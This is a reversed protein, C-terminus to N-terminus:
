TVGLYLQKCEMWKWENIKFCGFLTIRKKKKENM